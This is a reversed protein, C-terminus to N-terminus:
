RMGIRRGGAGPPSWLPPLLASLALRSSPPTGAWNFHNPCFSPSAPNDIDREGMYIMGALSASGIDFFIAIDRAVVSLRNLTEDKSFSVHFFDTSLITLGLLIGM